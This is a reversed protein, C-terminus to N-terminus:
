PLFHAAHEPQHGAARLTVLPTVAQRLILSLLLSLVPAAAGIQAASLHLGFAGAATAATTVAGVIVPVSVPRTTCATIVAALATGITAVAATQAPSARFGFAVWATVLASVGNVLVSPETLLLTWLRKLVPM